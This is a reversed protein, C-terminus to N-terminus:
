PTAVQRHRTRHFRQETGVRGPAQDMFREIATRIEPARLMMTAPQETVAPSGALWVGSPEAVERGIAEGDGDVGAAEGEEAGVDDGAVDLGGAAVGVGEGLPV